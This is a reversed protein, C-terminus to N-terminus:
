KSNFLARINDLNMTMSDSMFELPHEWLLNKFCTEIREDTSNFGKKEAELMWQYTKPNNLIMYAITYTIAALPLAFIYAGTSLAVISTATCIIGINRSASPYSLVMSHTIIKAEFLDM